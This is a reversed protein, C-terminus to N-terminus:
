PCRQWLVSEPGENVNGTDRQWVQHVGLGRFMTCALERVCKEWLPHTFTFQEADLHWVYGPSLKVVGQGDVTLAASLQAEPLLQQVCRQPLPLPVIGVDHVDIASLFPLAATQQALAVSTSLGGQGPLWSSRLATTVDVLAAHM